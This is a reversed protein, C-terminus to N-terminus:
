VQEHQTRGVGQAGIGDLARFVSKLLALGLRRFCSFPSHTPM